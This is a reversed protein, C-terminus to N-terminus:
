KPRRNKVTVIKDYRLIVNEDRQRREKLEAALKRRILNTERSFDENIYIKTDKLMKRKQIIKEKDTYRLLKLVIERPKGNNSSSNVRHAREIEINDLM